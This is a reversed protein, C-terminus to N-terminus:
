QNANWIDRYIQWTEQDRKWVIVYKGDGAVQGGDGRLKDTGVEIALDGSLEVDTTSVTWKLRARTVVVDTASEARDAARTNAHIGETSTGSRERIRRAGVWSEM